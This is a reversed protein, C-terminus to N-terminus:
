KQIPSFHICGFSEGTLFGACYGEYDYYELEDAKPDVSEVFKSSDCRGYVKKPADPASSNRTWHVCRSCVNRKPSSM